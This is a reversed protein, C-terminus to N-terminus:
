STTSWLFLPHFDPHLQQLKRLFQHILTSFKHKVEFIHFIMRTTSQAMSELWSCSAFCSNQRRSCMNLPAFLETAGRQFPWCWIEQHRMLPWKNQVTMLRVRETGLNGEWHSLAINDTCILNLVDWQSLLILLYHSSSSSLHASTADAWVRERWGHERWSGQM